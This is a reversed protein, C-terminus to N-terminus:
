PQEQKLREIEAKRELSIRLHIQMGAKYHDMRYKYVGAEERAKDREATLHAILEDKNSM